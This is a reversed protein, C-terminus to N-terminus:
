PSQRTIGKMANPLSVDLIDTWVVNPLFFQRRGDVLPGRLHEAWIVFSWGFFIRRMLTGTIPQEPFLLM